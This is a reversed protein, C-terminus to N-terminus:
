ESLTPRKRRGAPTSLSTASLDTGSLSKIKSMLSRPLSDLYCWSQPPCFTPALRRAEELRIPKNFSRPRVLHIAVGMRTGAFYKAYENKTVCASLEVSRWLDRTHAGEISGILALGVIAMTPATEYVVVVDGSVCSPARRRLEATKRGAFIHRSHTPHVSLLAGKM